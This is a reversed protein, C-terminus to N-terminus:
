RPAAKNHTLWTTKTLDGVYEVHAEVAGEFWEFHPQRAGIAIFSGPGYRVVRSRDLQEGFGLVLVGKLVVIHELGEHFHAGSDTPLGDGYRIRFSRLDPPATDTVLPMMEVGPSRPQWAALGAAPVPEPGPIRTAQFAVLRWHGGENAWVDAFRIRYSSTQAKLKVNMIGNVVGAAGYQRAVLSDGTLYDLSYPGGPGVEALVAKKDDYAGGSRAYTVHESLLTDLAARDARFDASIRARTLALLDVDHRQAAAPGFGAFTALLLMGASRVPLM